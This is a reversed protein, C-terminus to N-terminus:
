EWVGNRVYTGTQSNYVCKKVGTPCSTGACCANGEYHATNCGNGACVANDKFTSQEASIASSSCRTSTCISNGGFIAGLCYAEGVCSANDTFTTIGYSSGSSCRVTNTNNRGDCIANGSFQAGECEGHCSSNETFTTTGFNPSSACWWSWCQSEGSFTSAWCSSGQSCGSKGGITKRICDSDYSCYAADYDCAGCTGNAQVCLGEGCSTAKYSATSCSGANTIDCAVCEGDKLTYGSACFTTEGNNDCGASNAPCASCGGQDVYYGGNCGTIEDNENCVANEPCPEKFANGAALQGSLLYSTWRGETGNESVFVGGLSQCLEKATDGKAECMTTDPFNKSHKQYVVYRTNPVRGSNEVRVYSLYEPDTELTVNTGDDYSQQGAVDLVTPSTAYVGKEMYYAENGTALSKAIPMLAAYRSKMVAKQYQPVAVAALIAIILVVILIEMLTFGRRTNSTKM